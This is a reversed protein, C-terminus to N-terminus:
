QPQGPQMPPASPAKEKIDLVVVDFVLHEYPKIGSQPNPQSGYGLLSPIYINVHAGKKLNLVGLDVGKIMERNGVTFRLPELHGFTSDTNSDFKFGGFTKGTYSLSVYNGEVIPNGTGAEITEIFVGTETKQANIKNEKIYNAVLEVEKIAWAKNMEEEDVRALSDSTFVDLIKMKIGIKDGKKYKGSVFDPHQPNRKIFTDMMQTAIVSDGKKFKTWIESLDYPVSQGTVPIYVPLSNTTTFEVSDNFTRTFQVKIINGDFVKQTDNSTSIIKYPMGGPTKKYTAQGCSAVIGGIFVILVLNKFNM